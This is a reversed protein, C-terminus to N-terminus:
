RPLNGDQCGIPLPKLPRASGDRLPYRKRVQNECTVSECLTKSRETCLGLEFGYNAARSAAIIEDRDQPPICAQLALVLWILRM